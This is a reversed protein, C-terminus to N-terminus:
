CGGLYCFFLHLPRFPSMILKFGPRKWSALAQYKGTISLYIESIWVFSIEVM